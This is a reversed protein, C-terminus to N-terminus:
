VLLNTLGNSFQSCLNKRVMQSLSINRKLSLPQCKVIFMRAVELFWNPRITFIDFTTFDLQTRPLKSWHKTKNM